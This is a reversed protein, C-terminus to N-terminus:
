IEGVEWDAAVHVPSLRVLGQPVMDLDEGTVDFHAAPRWDLLEGGWGRAYVGLWLFYRGRPLPLRDIRCRVEVDADTPMQTDHGLVFIPQAPGESIGVLVRAARDEENHLVVQIDCPEQTRPGHGDVGTVGVKVVQVPGDSVVVEAVQELAQRYRNLVERAPGDAQVQGSHLWVARECIGEVTALDHSVFVLTTGQELVTRMRDLCRQQFSTDGVALV